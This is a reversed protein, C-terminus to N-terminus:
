LKPFGPGCTGEYQKMQAHQQSRQQDTQRQQEGRETEVRVQHQATAAQMEATKAM